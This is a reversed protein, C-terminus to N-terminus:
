GLRVEGRMMQAERSGKTHYVPSGHHTSLSSYWPSLCSCEPPYVPCEKQM